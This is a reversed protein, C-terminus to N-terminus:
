VKHRHDEKARIDDFVDELGGLVSRVVDKISGSLIYLRIKQARLQRLAKGSGAVLSISKAIELVQTRTLGRDAFKRLTIDCWEQHTIQKDRFQALYSACENIGYGLRKWIKEWTTEDEPRRTLTGDFDFVVARTPFM